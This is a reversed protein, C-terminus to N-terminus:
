GRNMLGRPIWVMATIAGFLCMSMISRCNSGLLRNVDSAPADPSVSVNCCWRMLDYYTWGTTSSPILKVAKSQFLTFKLRIQIGCPPPASQFPWDMSYCVILVDPVLFQPSACFGRIRRVRSGGNSGGRRQFGNNNALLIVSISM